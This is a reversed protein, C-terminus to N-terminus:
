KEGFLKSRAANSIAAVGPHRIRREMSIAYFRERVGELEGLSETQYQRKIEDAIVSPAVFLGLGAQGFAKAAASDDFEGVRNPSINHDVFFREMARRLLTNESPVLLPAGDLSKPFNARRPKVLSPVGFVTVGCEGLFHNFAKIHSEPSLPSEALVLDLNHAVLEGM